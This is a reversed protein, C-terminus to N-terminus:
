LTSPEIGDPSVVKKAAAELFNGFLEIGARSRLRLDCHSVERRQRLANSYSHFNRLILPALPPSFLPAPLPMVTSAMTSCLNALRNNECVDTNKSKEDSGM